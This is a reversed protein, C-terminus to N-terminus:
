CVLLDSFGTISCQKLFYFRIMPHFKLNGGLYHRHRLKEELSDNRDVHAEGKGYWVEQSEFIQLSPLGQSHLETSFYGFDPFLCLMTLGWSCIITMMDIPFCTMPFSRRDFHKWLKFSRWMEFMRSPFLFSTITLSEGARKRSLISSNVPPMSQKRRLIGLEPGGTMKRTKSIRNGNEENMTIPGRLVKVVDVFLGTITICGIYFRSKM